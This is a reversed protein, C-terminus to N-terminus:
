NNIDYVDYSMLALTLQQCGAAIACASSPVVLRQPIRVLVCLLPIYGTPVADKILCLNVNCTGIFCWHKNRMISPGFLTLIDYKTWESQEFLQVGGRFLAATYNLERRIDVGDILWMFCLM